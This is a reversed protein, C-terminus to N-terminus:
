GAEEIEIELQWVGRRVEVRSTLSVIASDDAWAGLATLHDAVLKWTSGGAYNDVDRRGHSGFVSTVTVVPREFRPSGAVRYALLTPYYWQRALRRRRSWHMRLLVNASVPLGPIVLKASLPALIAQSAAPTDDTM